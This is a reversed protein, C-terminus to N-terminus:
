NLIVSQLIISVSEWRNEHYQLLTEEEVLDRQLKMIDKISFNCGTTDMIGVDRGVSSGQDGNCEAGDDAGVDVRCGSHESVKKCHETYLGIKSPNIWCCEFLLQFAGKQKRVWGYNVKTKM